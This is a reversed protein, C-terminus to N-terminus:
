EGLVEINLKFDYPLDIDLMTLEAPNTLFWGLISAM